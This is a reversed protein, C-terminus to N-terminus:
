TVYFGISHPGATMGDWVVTYTLILYNGLSAGTVEFTIKLYGGDATPPPGGCNGKSCIYTGDPSYASFGFSGQVYTTGNPAVGKVSILGFCVSGTNKIWVTIETNPQGYAASANVFEWALTGSGSSACASSTTTAKTTTSSRTTSTTTTTSSTTTTTTSTATTTSTTTSVTTTSTTTSPTVSTTTETKTTSTSGTTTSSSANTSTATLCGQSGPACQTVTLTVSQSFTQGSETLTTTISFVDGPRAGTMLYTAVVRGGNSTDPVHGSGGELRSGNTSYFYAHFTGDVYSYPPPPAVGSEGGLRLPVTGTVKIALTVNTTSTTGNYVASGGQFQFSFTDYRSSIYGPLYVFLGSGAIIAAIALVLV